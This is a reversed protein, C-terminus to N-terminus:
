TTTAGLADGSSVSSGDEWQTSTIMTPEDFELPIWGGEPPWVFTPKELPVDPLSTSKAIIQVVEAMSPRDSPNPNTCALGLLLLRSADDDDFEGVVEDDVAELLRGERHATWVWDTLLQFSEHYGNLARKGTVVELILVGLAYIDTKRTAKRSMSYEPAIFGWTGAVGIDTYSNKNLCTIIRALGFDGLRGRFSSDLMINSAKIDRHLVMHEHEHHVYHLGVLPVINRHRLRNIVHVEALFDDYCRDDNRTFKKVAVDIDVRSKTTGPVTSRLTGRYVAGFGGAGLKRAQDFNNTAKRVTAYKFERPTGPLRRLAESLKLEMKLAKYRSQFYFAAAAIMAATVSVTGLVPLKDLTLNWSHIAHLEYTDQGTSASFGIYARQPLHSSINLPADLVAREPQEQGWPAIYVWIHHGVGNYVIWVTHSNDVKTNVPALTLNGPPVSSLPVAPDSVMSGINLGVHNDDPDYSQKTTDFEIAVFSSSTSKFTTNTLGLAERYMNMHFSTNFSADHRVGQSDVRWLTVPSMLLVSGTRNNLLDETISRSNPTLQLNGGSTTADKQFALGAGGSNNFTPFSYYVIDDRKKIEEECCSCSRVAAESATSCFLALAMCFCALWPQERVLTASTAPM